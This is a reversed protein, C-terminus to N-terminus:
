ISPPPQFGEIMEELARWRPGTSEMMFGTVCTNKLARIDLHGKDWSKRLESIQTQNDM